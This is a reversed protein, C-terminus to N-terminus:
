YDVGQSVSNNKPEFCNVPRINKKTADLPMLLADYMVAINRREKM